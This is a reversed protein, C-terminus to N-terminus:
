LKPPFFPNVWKKWNRKYMKRFRHNEAAFSTSTQTFCLPHPGHTENSEKVPVIAVAIADPFGGSADSVM